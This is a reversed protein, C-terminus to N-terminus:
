RINSETWILSKSTFLGDRLGKILFRAKKYRGRLVLYALLSFYYLGNYVLNLPYYLPVGYRRLVWLHNRSIYYHIVPSLNGENKDSSVKASVGAEHYMKCSPIYHLQYGNECMRFSLEVDEFYLFFKKNFLGTKLLAENRVLMCCGTLWEAAVFAKNKYMEQNKIGPHTRGSLKNFGGAGNWLKTRDHMWYIAPQAAAAEPHGDLHLKLTKVIDEDVITDTNIILSYSYGNQISYVLARNNGGAFGLNENNEIFILDPFQSKILFLSNDTSGNDAVIINFLGADCYQKISLICNITHVPTNWNLLVLAVPKSM